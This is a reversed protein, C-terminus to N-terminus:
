NLISVYIIVSVHDYMFAKKVCITLNSYCDRIYSRTINSRSGSVYNAEAITGFDEFARPNDHVQNRELKTGCNPNEVGAEVWKRKRGRHSQAISGFRRVSQVEKRILSDLLNFLSVVFLSVMLNRRLKM